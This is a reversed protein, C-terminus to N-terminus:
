LMSYLKDSKRTYMCEHPISQFNFSSTWYILADLAFRCCWINPYYM